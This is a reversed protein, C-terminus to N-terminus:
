DYSNKSIHKEARGGVSDAFDFLKFAIKEFGIMMFLVPIAAISLMVFHFGYVWGLIKYTLWLGSKPLHEGITPWLMWTGLAIIGILSAAFGFMIADNDNFFDGNGGLNLTFVAAILAWMYLEYGGWGWALTSAIQGCFVATIILFYRM